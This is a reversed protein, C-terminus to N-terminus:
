KLSTPHASCCSDGGFHYRLGVKFEHATIDDLSLRSPTFSFNQETRSTAARGMDLYRYGFDLIARDSVQYAVGAMLSWALTLDNDGTVRYPLAGQTPYAYEDMQHYALGVGAGVYPVVGRWNGLDFYGNVMGTYSTIASTIPRSAIVGGSTFPATLGSVGRQGHYGLMMEYRFGRSGSGCGVGVEGLWTDDMNRRVVSEDLPIGPAQFATWRMSPAESGSYGVGARFYCPGAMSRTPAVMDDKISGRGMGGLDAATAPVAFSAALTLAAVAFGAQVTRIM